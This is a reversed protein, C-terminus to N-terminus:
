FDGHVTLNLADVDLAAANVTSSAGLWVHFRASGSVPLSSSAVGVTFGGRSNNLGNSIGGGTISYDVSSFNITWDPTFDGTANDTVSTINYSADTAPTAQDYKLWAKGASPHYQQTSPTVADVASSAAEQQAQTAVGLPAVGAKVYSIVRWDGTAYEYLTAIDGAATTINAAGPIILNTAHHTLTLAGDFQLAILTGVGKTNLSTITTTGTVDFFNGDIDVALATASAVDAGKLWTQTKTFVNATGLAAADAFARVDTGIELGLATRAAAATASGTGGDAVTLPTGPTGGLVATDVYSKTTADGSATPTGVNKIRISTADWIEDTAKKLATNAIDIAEQAMYFMQIASNDLDDETLTGPAFDVDRSSQSTSRQLIIVDGNTAGTVLRIVTASFFTYDTTQTLTTGNQIVLVDEQAQYPFSITFDTQGGTATSVDRAFAM